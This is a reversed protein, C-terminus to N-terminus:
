QTGQSSMRWSLCGPPSVACENLAWPSIGLLLEVRSKKLNQVMNPLLRAMGAAGLLQTSLQIRTYENHQGHKRSQNRAQKELCRASNAAQTFEWAVLRLAKACAVLAFGDCGAQVARQQKSSGPHPRGAAPTEQWHAGSFFLNRLCNNNASYTWGLSTLSTWTEYGSQAIGLAAMMQSGLNSRKESAELM